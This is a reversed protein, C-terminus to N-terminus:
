VEIMFRGLKDDYSEYAYSPQLQWPQSAPQSVPVYAPTAPAAFDNQYYSRTPLSGATTSAAFDNEHYNGSAERQFM